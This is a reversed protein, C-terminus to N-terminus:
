IIVTCYLLARYFSSESETADRPAGPGEKCLGGAEKGRFKISTFGNFQQYKKSIPKSLSEPSLLLWTPGRMISSGEVIGIGNNRRWDGRWGTGRFAKGWFNPAVIALNM